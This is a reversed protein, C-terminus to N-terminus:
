IGTACMGGGGGKSWRPAKLQTWLAMGAQLLENEGGRRERGTRKEVAALNLFYSRADKEV